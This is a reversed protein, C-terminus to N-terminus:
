FTPWFTSPPILPSTLHSTVLMQRTRSEAVPAALFLAPPPPRETAVGGEDKNVRREKALPIFSSGSSFTSKERM